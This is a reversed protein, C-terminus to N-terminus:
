AAVENPGAGAGKRHRALWEALAVSALDSVSKGTSQAATRLATAVTFPVRTSFSVKPDVAHLASTSTHMCRM